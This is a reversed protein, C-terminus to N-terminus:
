VGSWFFNFHVLPSVLCKWAVLGPCNTVRGCEARGFGSKGARSDLMYVDRRVLASVLGKLGDPQPM